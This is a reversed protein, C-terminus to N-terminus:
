LVGIAFVAIILERQSSHIVDGVFNIITPVHPSYNVIKIRTSIVM